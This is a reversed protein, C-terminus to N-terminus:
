RIDVKVDVVQSLRSKLVYGGAVRLVAQVRGSFEPADMEEKVAVRSEVEFWAIAMARGRLLHSFSLRGELGRIGTGIALAQSNGSSVILVRYDNKLPEQGPTSRWVEDIRADHSSSNDSCSSLKSASGEKGEEDDSEEVAVITDERIRNM